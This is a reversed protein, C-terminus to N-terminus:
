RAERAIRFPDEGARLLHLRFRYAFPPKLLRYPDHPLAGWSDDGGVGRQHLDLDLTVTDRPPLLYPYFNAMQSACFLDETTAHLANASLLPAGLALLGRGDRGTLAIWRVGEKNGTEGPKIYPFFQDAVTGRYLGVRADQRDWYTEQPGKGFWAV